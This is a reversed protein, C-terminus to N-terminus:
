PWLELAEAYSAAWKARLGARQEASGRTYAGPRWNHLYYRFAGDVDGLEPLPNPDTWYLLRAVAADLSDDATPLAAYLGDVTPEIGKLECLKLIHPRSAPHNIVGYVGGMREFQFIGRAPGCKDPKVPLQCQEGNPSEQLSSTVCLVGATRGGMREPLLAFGAKVAELLTM